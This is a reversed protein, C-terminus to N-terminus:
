LFDDANLSPASSPPTGVGDINNQQTASHTIQPIAPQQTNASTPQSNQGYAQVTPNSIQTNNEAQINPVYVQQAVASHTSSNKIIVSKIPTFRYVETGGKGFVPYKSIYVATPPTNNIPDPKKLSMLLEEIEFIQTGALKNATERTAGSYIIFSNVTGLVSDMFPANTNIILQNLDQMSLTTAINCSRGKELIDKVIITNDCSGFEDIYLALTPNYKSRTGVEMLDKLMLSTLSTGLARSASSFSVFLLYQQTQNFTFKNGENNFIGGIKSTIALELLKIITNYAEFLERPVNYKQLFQYYGVLYNGETHNYEGITKQLLLQAGTKYHADSGDM